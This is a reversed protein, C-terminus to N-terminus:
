VSCRMEVDVWRSGPIAPYIMRNTDGSCAHDHASVSAVDVVPLGQTPIRALRWTGHLVGLHEEMELAAADADGAPLHSLKRRHSSAIVDDAAPGIVLVLTTSATPLSASCVRWSWTM